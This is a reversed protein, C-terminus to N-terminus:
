ESLLKRKTTRNMPEDNYMIIRKNAPSYIRAYFREQVSDHVSRVSDHGKCRGFGGRIDRTKDRAMEKNGVSRIQMSCVQKRIGM